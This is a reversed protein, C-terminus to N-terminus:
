RKREAKQTRQQADKKRQAAAERQRQLNAKDREVKTHHEQRAAERKIREAEAIRARNDNKLLDADPDYEKGSHDVALRTVNGHEDEFNLAQAKVLAEQFIDKQEQSGKLEDKREKLLAWKELVGAIFSELPESTAEELFEKIAEAKEEDSMTEELMIGDIYNSFVEDDLGLGALGNLTFARFEALESEMNDECM